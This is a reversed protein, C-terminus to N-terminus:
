QYMKKKLLHLLRQKRKQLCKSITAKATVNPADPQNHLEILFNYELVLM